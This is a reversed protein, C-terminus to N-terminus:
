RGPALVPKKLMYIHKEVQWTGEYHGSELLASTISKVASNISQPCNVYQSWGVGGKDSSGSEKLERWSGSYRLSGSPTRHHLFFHIVPEEMAGWVLEHWLDLHRSSHRLTPTYEM